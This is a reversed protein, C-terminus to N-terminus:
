NYHAYYKVKNRLDDIESISLRHFVCEIRDLGANLGLSAAQKAIQDLLKQRTTM